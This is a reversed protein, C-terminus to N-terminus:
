GNGSTLGQEPIKYADWAQINEPIKANESKTRTNKKRNKM